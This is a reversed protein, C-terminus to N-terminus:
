RGIAMATHSELGMLYPSRYCHQLGAQHQGGVDDGAFVGV